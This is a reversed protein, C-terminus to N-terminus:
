VMKELAAWSKFNVGFSALAREVDKIIQIQKWQPCPRDLQLEIRAADTSAVQEFYALHGESVDPDNLYIRNGTKKFINM